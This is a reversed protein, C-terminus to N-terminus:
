SRAPSDADGSDNEVQALTADPGAVLLSDSPKLPLSPDPPLSLGGSLADRVAIIQVGLRGRTNLQLLNRGVWRAPVAIEQMSFGPALENYDLVSTSVIAHALRQGAEFEPIVTGTVGVRQLARGETRSNVKAFIRRLGLERLEMVALISTALHDGTGVVAVDADRAGARELVQPDTADGVLTRSALSAYRDARDGDVEVAIVDHGMSRLEEILACIFSGLGVVLIRM